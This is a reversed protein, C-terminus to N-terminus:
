NVTIGPSEKTCPERMALPLSSPRTHLLENTHSNVTSDPPTLVMSKCRRRRSESGSVQSVPLCVNLHKCRINQRMVSPNQTVLDTSISLGLPRHMKPSRPSFEKVKQQLPVPNPQLLKWPFMMHSDPWCGLCGEGLHSSSGHSNIQGNKAEKKYCIVSTTTGLTEKWDLSSQSRIRM